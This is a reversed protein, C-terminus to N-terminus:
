KFIRIFGQVVDRSRSKAWCGDGERGGALNTNAEVTDVSGASSNQVLGIHSFDFIVFDGPMAIAYKPLVLVDSKRKAWDRWRFAGASKCRWSEFEKLSKDFTKRLEGMEALEVGLQKLWYCCAAACYPPRGKYAPNSLDYAEPYDTAPWYKAIWPARNSTKEVKRVDRLAIDVLLRGASTATMLNIRTLKFRIM